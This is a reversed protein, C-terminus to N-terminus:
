FMASILSPVVLYFASHQLTLLMAEYLNAFESVSLFTPTSRFDWAGVGLGRDGLGNAISHKSTQIIPYLPHPQVHAVGMDETYWYM